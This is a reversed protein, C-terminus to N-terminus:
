QYEVAGIDCVPAGDGNGDIIRVNGHQDEELEVSAVFDYCNALDGADIVNSDELVAHTRTWGGNDALEPDIRDATDALRFNFGPSYADGCSLDGIRNNAGASPYFSCLPRNGPLPALEVISNGLWLSSWNGYFIQALLEESLNGIFTSNSVRVTPLSGASAHFDFVAGRQATNHSYTSNMVNVTGSGKFSLAGGNSGALNEALTSQAITVDGSGYSTGM